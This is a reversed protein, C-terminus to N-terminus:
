RFVFRPALKIKGLKGATGGDGSMSHGLFKNTNESREQLSVNLLFM